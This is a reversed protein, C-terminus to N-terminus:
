CQRLLCSPVLEGIHKRRHDRHVALMAIYGRRIAGRHLDLKCVIAGVCDEEYRALVCLQPWQHIFYRFTYISYPESLDAKMLEMIDPLQLESEYPIYSVGNEDVSPVLDKPNIIDPQDTPIPDLGPMSYTPTKVSTLVVNEDSNMDQVDECGEEEEEVKLDSTAADRPISAAM